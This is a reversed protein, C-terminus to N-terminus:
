IELGVVNYIGIFSLVYEDRIIHAKRKNFELARETLSTKKTRELFDAKEETLGGLLVLQSYM